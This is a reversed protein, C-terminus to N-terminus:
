LLAVTLFFVTIALQNAPDGGTLDGPNGSLKLVIPAAVDGAGYEFTALNTHLGPLLEAQPLPSLFHLAQGATLWNTLDTRGTASVNLLLDLVDWNSQTVVELYADAGINTYSAAFAKSLVGQTPVVIRNVVGAVLAVPTTPLAKIQADTLTVTASQLMDGGLDLGGFLRAVFGDGGLM